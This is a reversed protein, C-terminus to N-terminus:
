GNQRKDRKKFLEKGMIRMLKARRKKVRLYKRYNVWVGCHWCRKWGNNWLWKENKTLEKFAKRDRRETVFDHQNKGEPDDRCDPLRIRRPIKKM